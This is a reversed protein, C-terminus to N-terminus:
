RAAVLVFGKRAQNTLEPQNKRKTTNVLERSENRFSGSQILM